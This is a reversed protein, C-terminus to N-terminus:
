EKLIKIVKSNILEGTKTSLVFDEHNFEDNPVVHDLKPTVGLNNRIFQVDKPPALYDNVSSFLYIKGTTIKQLQYHPPSAQGYHRRNGLTGYNYMKFDGTRMAQFWHIMNKVSTGSPYESSYVGLRTTNLNNPSFGSLVFLMNSCLAKVESNCLHNTIFTKMPTSLLFQGHVYSLTNWFPMFKSLYRVPSKMNKVSAVPALAIFKNIKNQYEPKSSLLGFMILTGQSHGVYDISTNNTEELIYDIVAPLDYGIMEDFSFDWFSVSKNSLTMHTSSYKNGRSNSMWVDYCRKGLEFGLTNGVKSDENEAPLVEDVYGDPSGVVWTRDSEHLGHQLLVPRADKNMSCPARLRHVQLIYGDKTIVEHTEAAFGRSKILGVTDLFQDPDREVNASVQLALAVAFLVSLIM